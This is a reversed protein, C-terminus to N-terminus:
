VVQAEEVAGAVQGAAPRQPHEDVVQAPAREVHGDKETVLTLECLRPMRPVVVWSPRLTLLIRIGLFEGSGCVTVLTNLVNLGPWRLTTMRTSSPSLSRGSTHVCIPTQAM